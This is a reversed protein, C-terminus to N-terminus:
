FAYTKTKPSDAIKMTEEIIKRAKRSRIEVRMSESKEIKDYPKKLKLSRLKFKLSVVLRELGLMVM